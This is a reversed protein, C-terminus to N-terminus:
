FSEREIRNIQINSGHLQKGSNKFVTNKLYKQDQEKMWIYRWTKRVKCELNNLINLKKKMNKM